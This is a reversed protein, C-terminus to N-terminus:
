NTLTSIVYAPLKAMMAVGVVSCLSYIFCDKFLLLLVVGM